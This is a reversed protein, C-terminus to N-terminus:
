FPGFHTDNSLLHPKEFNQMCKVRLRTVSGGKHFGTDAVPGVLNQPCHKNPRNEQFHLSVELVVIIRPTPTQPLMYLIQVFTAHM